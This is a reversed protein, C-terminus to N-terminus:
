SFKTAEARRLLTRIRDQAKLAEDCAARSREPGLNVSAIAFGIWNGLKEDTTSGEASEIMQRVKPLMAQLVVGEDDREFAQDSM